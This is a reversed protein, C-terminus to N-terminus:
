VTCTVVASVQTKKSHYTKVLYQYRHRSIGSWYGSVRVSSKITTPHDLLNSSARVVLPTKCSGARWDLLNSHGLVTFINQIFMPSSISWYRVLTMQFHEPPPVILVVTVFTVCATSV